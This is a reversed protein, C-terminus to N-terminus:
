PQGYWSVFTSLVATCVDKERRLPRLSPIDDSLWGTAAFDRALAYCGCGRSRWAQRLGRIPPPAPVM